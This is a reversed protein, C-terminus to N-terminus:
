NGDVVFTPSPVSTSNNPDSGNRVEFVNPYRDGDADEFGDAITPDLGHLHEEGNTMGDSGFDDNGGQSLDGFHQVEWADDMGDADTDTLAQVAKGVAPRATADEGVPSSCSTTAALAVVLAGMAAHTVASRSRASDVFVTEHDRLQM